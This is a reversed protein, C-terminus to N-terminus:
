KARSHPQQDHELPGPSCRRVGRALRDPSPLRPMDGLPDGALIQELLGRAVDPVSLVTFKSRYNQFRKGELTRWVAVLDEDSSLAAASPVGLGLFWVTRGVGTSHFILFM